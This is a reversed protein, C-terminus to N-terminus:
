PCGEHQKLKDLSTKGTISNYGNYGTWGLKEAWKKPEVYKTTIVSFTCAWGFDFEAALVRFESGPM